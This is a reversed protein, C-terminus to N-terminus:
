VQREMVMLKFEDRFGIEKLHAVIESNRVPQNDWVEVKISRIRRWGGPDDLLKPLLSLAEHKEDISLDRLPMLRSGKAEIALIPLGNKLILYNNPHRLLRWDHHLPHLLPLPSAAGYLNAPDCTNLLIMHKSSQESSPSDPKKQHYTTLADAAQPLAFQVGSLGKVFYGRRIEGRWELRVLTEYILRWSITWHELEFLERCILGYRQLLQRALAELIETTIDVENNQPPLLSWRGSGTIPRYRHPHGFRRYAKHAYKHQTYNLQNHTSSAPKGARV